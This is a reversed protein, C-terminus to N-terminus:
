FRYKLKVYSVYTSFFVVIYILKYSSKEGVTEIVFTPGLQTFIEKLITEIMFFLFFSLSRRGSYSCCKM